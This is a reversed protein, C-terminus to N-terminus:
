EAEPPTPRTTTFPGWEAYSTGGPGEGEWTDDVDGAEFAERGWATTGLPIEDLGEYWVVYRQEKPLQMKEIVGAYGAIDTVTDEHYGNEMFRAIKLLIMMVAVDEPSYEKGTYAEWLKAIRQHNEKADGYDQARQGNIINEATTLISM